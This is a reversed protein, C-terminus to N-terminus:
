LRTLMGYPDRAEAIVWSGPSRALSALKRIIPVALVIMM